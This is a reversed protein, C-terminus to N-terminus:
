NLEIYLPVELGQFLLSESSARHFGLCGIRGPTHVPVADYALAIQRREKFIWTAADLWPLWTLLWQCSVRLSNM